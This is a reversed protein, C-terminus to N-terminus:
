GVAKFQRPSNAARDCLGDLGTAQSFIRTCLGAHNGLHPGTPM